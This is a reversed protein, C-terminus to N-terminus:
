GDYQRPGADNSAARSADFYAQAPAFSHRRQEDEVVEIFRSLRSFAEAADVARGSRSIRSVGGVLSYFDAQNKLRSRILDGANDSRVIDDIKRIAAQYQVVVTDMNEWQPDRSSFAADLDDQSYSKPGDEILLLLQAIFETDRMQKRSSPLIYPFNKPLISFTWETLEEVKSIFAGSFKAHRLEQRTLKAVNRNIRDFVTNILNEDESPIFEVAFQYRWFGRKTDDDLDKFYKDRYKAISAESSVPNENNAFEFLTLLRQKGDVVSYKAVGEPTINEYLFIAPCPYDNLVTDVFFDKYPQNWISRRQYPPDMELLGRKYLDWLWSLSQFTAKRQM